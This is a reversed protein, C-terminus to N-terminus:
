KGGQAVSANVDTSLPMDRDCVFFAIFSAPETQSANASVLHVGNPSEYFSQGPKVLVEPEGKVQTRIMGSIVYGTVACPHSHPHSAEGPGYNVEVVTAKLKNGDLTPLGHALVIRAREKTANHDNTAARQGCALHRMGLGSCFVVAAVGIYRGCSSM